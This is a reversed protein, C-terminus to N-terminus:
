RLLPVQVFRLCVGVGRQTCCWLYRHCHKSEVVTIDVDMDMRLDTHMGLAVDEGSEEIIFCLGIAGCALGSLTGAVTGGIIVRSSLSTSASQPSNQVQSPNSTRPVTTNSGGAHNGSGSGIILKTLSIQM